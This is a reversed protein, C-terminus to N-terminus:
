LLQLACQEMHAPNANRTWLRFTTVLLAHQSSRMYTMANNVMLALFVYVVKRLLISTYQVPPLHQSPPANM